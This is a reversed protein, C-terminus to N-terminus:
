GGCNNQVDNASRRDMSTRDILAQPCPIEKYLFEPNDAVEFWDVFWDCADMLAGLESKSGFVQECKTRVCQKLAAHNDNGHSSKCTALIGGYGQGLDGASVGWQAPCANQFAGLGGGPIMLDFQGDGSVDYGINTAQVIMTKGQLAQSGPDNGANHSSGKFQFQFCRGCHDGAGGHTAVYGYALQDSVAWPANDYCVFGASNNDPESCASPADASSLKQNQRSCMTM